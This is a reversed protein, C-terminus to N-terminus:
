TDSGCSSSRSGSSSSASSYCSGNASAYGGFHVDFRRKSMRIQRIAPALTAWRCPTLRHLRSSGGAGRAGCTLAAYRAENTAWTRFRSRQPDFGRVRTRVRFLTDNWAESVVEHDGDFFDRVLFAVIKGRFAWAFITLAAYESASGDQELRLRDVLRRTAGDDGRELAAILRQDRGVSITPHQM